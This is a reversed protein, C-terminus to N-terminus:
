VYRGRVNRYEISLHPRFQANAMSLWIRVKFLIRRVKPRAEVDSRAVLFSKDM